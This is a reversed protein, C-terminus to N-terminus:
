PKVTKNHKYIDVEVGGEGWNQKSESGFLLYQQMNCWNDSFRVTSQSIDHDQTYLGIFYSRRTLAFAM